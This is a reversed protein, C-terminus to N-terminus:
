SAAPVLVGRDILKEFHRRLQRPVPGGRVFLGLEINDNFAWGLIKMGPVQLGQPGGLIDNVELFTKLLLAFALRM